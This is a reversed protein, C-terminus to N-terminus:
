WLQESVGRARMAQRYAVNIEKSKREALIRLESGLSAVKDPHYQSMLVRYSKRIEEVSASEVVGLVSNWATGQYVPISDPADRGSRENSSGPDEKRSSRALIKSVIWYGLLLGAIIVVYEPRSM